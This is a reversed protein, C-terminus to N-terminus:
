RDPLSRRGNASEPCIQEQAKLSFWSFDSMDKEAAVRRAMQCSRKQGNNRISPNIEIPRKTALRISDSFQVLLIAVRARGRSRWPLRESTDLAEKVMASKEPILALV